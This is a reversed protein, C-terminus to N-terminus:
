GHRVQGQQNCTLTKSAAGSVGLRSAVGGMLWARRCSREPDRWIPGLASDRCGEIWALTTLLVPLTPHGVNAARVASALREEAGPGSTVVLITPFGLYERASRPSALYRQYAAFKARLAQPRVTGRDFELFFGHERHRLRLLGYGDPRVRGHACAGANRWETLAGGERRAAHAIAAFVADAGLTHALRRALARRGGVPAAPGGGALGHYRVAVRLSVGLLGALLMLGRGTAEVLECDAPVDATLEDTPVVRVLGRSMLVARRRRAWRVSKGLVESLGGIPLFPHRGVLDLAARDGASLDWAAVSARV